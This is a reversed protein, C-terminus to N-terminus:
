PRPKHEVTGTTIAVHIHNLLHWDDWQALGLSPLPLRLIGFICPYRMQFLIFYFLAGCWLERESKCLCVYVALPFQM